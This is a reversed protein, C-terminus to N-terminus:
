MRLSLERYVSYIFSGIEQMLSFFLLAIFVVIAASCATLILNVVMKGASYEHIVQIGIYIMLCAWVVGTLEIIELYTEENLSLFNSIIPTAINFIILPLLSYCIVLYIEKMTGKGDLFTTIAWNAVCFLVVPLVIVRIEYFIDLPVNYQSNFIFGRVQRNFITAFLLLLLLINATKLSGKKENKMEWFGDFPHRLIYFAFKM